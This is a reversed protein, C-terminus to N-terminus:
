LSSFLASMSRLADDRERGTAKFADRARIEEDSMFPSLAILALMEKKSRATKILEMFSFIGSPDIRFKLNALKAGLMTSTDGAMSEALAMADAFRLRAGLDAQM